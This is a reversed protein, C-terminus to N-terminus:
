SLMGGEPPAAGMEPGPAPMAPAQAAQQAAMDRAQKKDLEQKAAVMYNQILQLRDWPVENLRCMNYFKGAMDFAKQLDTFGPEPVIQEGKIVMTDLEKLIIEDDSISLDNEAEIDPIEWLRKFQDPTILGQNYLETLQEFKASPTKALMSIPFIRVVLEDMDNLIEAWDIEEYTFKNASRSKYTGKREVLAKIEEIILHSLDIIWRELARHDMVNRESEFDEYVQMAKGSAGHLGAPIQSSVSLPSVGATRMMENPISDRYQYTQPNAPAPTFVQPPIQGDFSFLTGQDNDITKASMNASTPAIIHSGGMMHHAKQLKLTIKEHEYQAGALNFADSVGYWGRRKKRSCMKAFPFRDRTWLEDFLTCGQIGITHRGDKADKSSPLHWGEIVKIMNHSIGASFEHDMAATASLICERRHDKDGFLTDDEIGYADLLQYRDIFKQQYMCRPRRDRGEAEDVVVDEAPVFEVHVEDDSFVKALGFSAILMDLVVDEKIEEIRCKEFEGDLGRSAMKARHRQFYNGGQSMVMPVIKTKVIKAAKTDIVNTSYNFTMMNERLDIESSNGDGRETARYGYEYIQNLRRINNFHTTQRMRLENERALMGQYPDDDEWWCGHEYLM